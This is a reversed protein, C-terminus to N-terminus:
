TNINGIITEYRLLTRVGDDFELDIGDTNPWLVISGPKIDSVDTIEKGVAVVRGSTPRDTSSFDNQIIIGGETIEEKKLEIPEVLLLDNRPQFEESKFYIRQTKSM